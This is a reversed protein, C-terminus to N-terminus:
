LLLSALYPFAILTGITSGINAFAGVMVIRTANNKMMASYSNIEQLEEIDRVKPARVKAEALAAFWGAAFFPHLSTFPAALFATIVSLPHGRAILVGASSLVGNVLFWGLLANIGLSLDKTLFIGGIIAAFLLPVAYKLMKLYNRSEPITDIGEAHRGELINREIGDLHGAGVVALIRKCKCRQIRDAIYLDREDVLVSKLSPLERSFEEMLATMVDKKKLSEIKEEEILEKGAGFLMLVISYFLKLKERIGAKAIARKMTVKIDRDLLVIARGQEQAANVAALMDSGAKIGIDEGIKKQLNALLLNILFLYAQGSKIIKMVNTERWREGSRLQLLRSMDLEVGVADPSYKEVAEKVLEESKRSIHATGVLIIEKGDKSIERVPM